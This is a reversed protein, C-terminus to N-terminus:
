YLPRRKYPRVLFILPEDVKAFFTTQGTTILAGQLRLSVKHGRNQIEFTRDEVGAKEGYHSKEIM